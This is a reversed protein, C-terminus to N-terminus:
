PNLWQLQANRIEPSNPGGLTGKFPTGSINVWCKDIVGSGFCMNLAKRLDDRRLTDGDIIINGVNTLTDINPYVYCSLFSSAANHVNCRNITTPKDIYNKGDVLYDLSSIGVDNGWCPVACCVALALAIFLRKM